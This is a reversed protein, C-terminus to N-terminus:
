RGRKDFLGWILGALTVVAGGIENAMGEDITGKAVLLGGVFTLTHRIMSLAQDKKM